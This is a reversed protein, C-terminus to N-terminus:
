DKKLTLIDGRDNMLKKNLKDLLRYVHNIDKGNMMMRESIDFKMMLSERTRKTLSGSYKRLISIVEERSSTEIRFCNANKERILDFLIVNNVLASISNTREKRRKFYKDYFKKRNVVMEDSHEQYYELIEGYTFDKDKRYGDHYKYVSLIALSLFNWVVGDKVELSYKKIIEPISMRVFSNMAFFDDFINKALEVDGYFPLKSSNFAEECMEFDLAKFEPEYLIEALVNQLREYIIVVRDFTLNYKKAVKGYSLGNKYKEELLIRESKSFYRFNPLVDEEYNIIGEIEGNLYKNISVFARQCRRKISNATDGYIAALEELSKYSCDIEYLSSIIEREKDSIPLHKDKLAKVVEEKEM